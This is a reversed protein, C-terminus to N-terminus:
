DNSNVVPIGAAFWPDIGAATRILLIPSACVAPPVPSLVDDITFDGDAALPVANAVPTSFLATGCILTAFVKSGGNTAIGNGGALLLGRGEVHIRGDQSVEASLARIVWPEGPPQVGQVTNASGVTSAPIVGIGGNFRAIVDQAMASSAVLVALVSALSAGAIGIKRLFSRRGVADTQRDDIAKGKSALLLNQLPDDTPSAPSVKAVANSVTSM